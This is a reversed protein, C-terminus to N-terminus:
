AKAFSGAVFRQTKPGLTGEEKEVQPLHHLNSKSSKSTSWHNSKFDLLSQPVCGERQTGNLPSECNKGFPIGFTTTDIFLSAKFCERFIKSFISFLYWSPFRGFGIIKSFIYLLRLSIVSPVWNGQKNPSQTPICMAQPKLFFFEPSTKQSPTASSQRFVCRHLESPLLKGNDFLNSKETPFLEGFSSSESSSPTIRDFGLRGSFFPTCNSSRTISSEIRICSQRELSDYM